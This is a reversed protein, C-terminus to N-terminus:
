KICPCCGFWESRRCLILSRSLLAIMDFRSIPLWSLVFTGDDFLRFGWYKSRDEDKDVDDELESDVVDENTVETGEAIPHTALSLSNTHRAACKSM